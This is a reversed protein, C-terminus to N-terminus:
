RYDQPIYTLGPVHPISMEETRVGRRGWSGMSGVGGVGEGGDAVAGSASIQDLIRM